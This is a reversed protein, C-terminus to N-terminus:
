ADTLAPDDDLAHLMDLMATAEVDKMDLYLKFSASEWGYRPSRRGSDGMPDPYDACRRATHLPAHLAGCRARTCKGPSPPAGASVSRPLIRCLAGAGSGRAQMDCAMNLVPSVLSERRTACFGPCPPLLLPLPQFQGEPPM